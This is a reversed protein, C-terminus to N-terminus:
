SIQNPSDVHGLEVSLFVLIILNFSTVPTRLGAGGKIHSNGIVRTMEDIL